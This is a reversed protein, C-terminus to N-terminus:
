RDADDEGEEDGQDTEGEDTVEVPPMDILAAIGQEKAIRELRDLGRNIAMRVQDTTFGFADAIDKVEFQQGREIADFVYTLVRQANTQGLQPLVSRAFALARDTRAEREFAARRVEPDQLDDALDDAIEVQRRGRRRRDAARRSIITWLLGGVNDIPAPRTAMRVFLDDLGDALVDNAEAEDLSWWRGSM